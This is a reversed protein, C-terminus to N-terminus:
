GTAGPGAGSGSPPLAAVRFEITQTADLGSWQLFDESCRDLERAPILGVLEVRAIDTREAHALERVHLVAEEVGTADLDVLNMSVQARDESALVFGLARVGRMGGSSERMARAIRNAVEVDRAVLLCNIAVLPKRAGVASAGLQPHPLSPGYDPRRLKFATRRINPLDRHQPDADDYMFCPVAFAESWWRAFSHAAQSAQGTEATTGGLAVFPVVDLAGTRPHVGQHATLDVHQAVAGALLRVASEADRIGGGALTFVSRNHDPDNHWDLLSRECAAVLRRLAATDRGESVNPVCEIV